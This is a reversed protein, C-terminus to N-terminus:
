ELAGLRANHEALTSKVVEITERLERQVAMLEKRIVVDSSDVSAGVNSIRFGKIDWIRNGINTVKEDLENVAIQADELRQINYM